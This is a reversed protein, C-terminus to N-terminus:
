VQLFTAQLPSSVSHCIPCSRESYSGRGLHPEFDRDRGGVRIDGNWMPRSMVFRVRAIRAFCKMSLDFFELFIEVFGLFIYVGFNM